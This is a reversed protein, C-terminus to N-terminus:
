VKKTSDDQITDYIVGGPTKQLQELPPTIYSVVQYKSYHLLVRYNWPQFDNRNEFIINEVEFGESVMTISFSHSEGRFFFQTYSKYRTRYHSTVPCLFNVASESASAWASDSGLLILFPNKQFYAYIWFGYCSGVCKWYFPLFSSYNKSLDMLLSQKFLSHDKEM